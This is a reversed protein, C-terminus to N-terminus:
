GKRTAESLSHFGAWLDDMPPREPRHQLLDFWLNGPDDAGRCGRLAQNPGDLMSSRFGLTEIWRELDGAIVRHLAHQLRHAGPV